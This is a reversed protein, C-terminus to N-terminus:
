KNISLFYQLLYPIQEDFLLAMDAEDLPVRVLYDVLLCCCDGNANMRIGSEEREGSSQSQLDLDEVLM